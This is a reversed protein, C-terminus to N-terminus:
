FHMLAYVRAANVKGIVDSVFGADATGVSKVSTFIANKAMMNM